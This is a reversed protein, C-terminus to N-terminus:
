TEFDVALVHLLGAIRGFMEAAQADSLGGGLDFLVLHHVTV